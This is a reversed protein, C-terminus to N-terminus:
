QDRLSRGTLRLFVSELNPREVRVASVHEAALVRALDAPPDATEIRRSGADSDIIISSHGGHREILHDVTGMDLIKGHDIIAIRDCLRQAEEMAHTTYVITCGRSRLSMLLDFLAHRSQPDVGVTPEDLLLLAPEHMLAAALNLRRKMGGSLTELRSRRRDTLGIAALLEDTRRALAPGRLGYIRGYFRLNEEATLEDYLALAQPAVGLIARVPASAPDGVGGGPMDIEVAGKDPRLLGTCMSVTTSKGAGNPGLLGFIEGREIALSVGDVATREGFLKTIDRLRLM